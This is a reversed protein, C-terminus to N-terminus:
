FNKKIKETEALMNEIFVGYGKEPDNVFVHTVAGILKGNQIIPAGSMGQVIGGAAKKLREDTVKILMNKNGSNSLTNIKLIEIDYECVENGSLTALITAKGKKIESKEATETQKKEKPPEFFNGFIGFNNNSMIKGLIKENEYFTGILEGPIGKKGKEVSTIKAETVSGESLPFLEETEPNSIGHGLMAFNKGSPDYYTVTGIGSAGDKVGFGIDYSQKESNYVPTLSFNKTKDNRKVTIKMQRGGSAEVASNLDAACTIKKNDAETIIDGVELVATETRNLGIIGLNKEGGVVLAGECNLIIGAAEGGPIVTKASATLNDGFAQCLALCLFFVSFKKTIKNKCTM